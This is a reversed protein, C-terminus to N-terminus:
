RRGNAGEAREAAKRANNLNLMRKDYEAKSIRKADFDAKLLAADKAIGDLQASPTPQAGSATRRALEVMDVMTYRKILNEAATRLEADTKNGAKAFDDYERIVIAYRQSAAPDPVMDSPKIANTIFQREREYATRPGEQRSISRAASLTSSLTENKIRGNRHYQFAMREAEVPNDYILRQLDAYAAPDNKQGPGEGLGKLLSKYEAPEIFSRIQEVYARDLKGSTQRSFAEKLLDDGRAKRAREADADLQRRTTEARKYAQDTLSARQAEDLNPLYSPDLALKDATLSADVMMDRRVTALDLKSLFGRERKGADVPNIWGGAQATTIAIRVQNTILDFEAANKANAAANAYVDLSTDLSAVNYSREKTMADKRVNISKALALEQFRKGFAQRVVPDPLDASYKDRIAAASQEFRNKATAFDQDQEFSLELEALDATARGIRDTLDAERRVKTMERDIKNLDDGLETLAAGATMSLPVGGPANARPLGGSQPLSQQEYLPIRVPM